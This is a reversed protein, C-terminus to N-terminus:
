LGSTWPPGSSSAPHLRPQPPRGQLKLERTAPRGHDRGRGVDDWGAIRLGCDAVLTRSLRVGLLAGQSGTGWIGRMARWQQFYTYVACMAAAEVAEKTGRKCLLSHAGSVGAVQAPAMFRRSEYCQAAYVGRMAYCLRFRSLRAWGHRQVAMDGQRPCVSRGVCLLLQAALHRRQMRLRLRLRLRLCSRLLAITGGDRARRGGGSGRGRVEHGVM